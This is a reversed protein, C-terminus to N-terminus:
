DLNLAAELLFRAYRNAALFVTKKNAWTLWCLLLGSTILAATLSVSSLERAVIWAKYINWGCARLAIITLPLGFRKMGLLNRRFGYAILAEFIQPFSKKNRTRRILEEACSEFYKDAAQPDNTQEEKSPVNLGLARLKDHIRSRTVDNFEPNLYRLFRTTPPGGWENWLPKELKKGFDAGLQSMLFSLPVFVLAAAGGLPLNLGEPLIAALFLIVPAITLYVPFVRARLDYADFKIEM